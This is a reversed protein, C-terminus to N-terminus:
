VHLQERKGDVYTGVQEPARYALTTHKEIDEKAYCVETGNRLVRHDTSCSGFDCLKVTGDSGVLLNEVKMDRHAIRHAHLHRSVNMVVM